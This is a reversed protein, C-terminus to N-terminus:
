KQSKLYEDDLLSSYYQKTNKSQHNDFNMNSQVKNSAKSSSSDSVYENWDKESDFEEEKITSNSHCSIEGTAAMMMGSNNNTALNMKNTFDANMRNMEFNKTKSEFTDESGFAPIPSTKIMGGKFGQNMQTKKVFGPPATAVQKVPFQQGWNYHGFNMTDTMSNSRMQNGMPQENLQYQDFGNSYYNSVPMSIRRQELYEGAPAPSYFTSPYGPAPYPIQYNM